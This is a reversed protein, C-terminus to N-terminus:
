DEALITLRRDKYPSKLCMETGEIEAFSHPIDHQRIHKPNRGCRMNDCDATCFTIDESM